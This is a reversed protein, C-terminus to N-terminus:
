ESAAIPFSAAESRGFTEPFYMEYATAPLATFQGPVSARATYTYEYVGPRLEPAFVAVKTDRVEAHTWYSWYPSGPGPYGKAPQPQGPPPGVQKISPAQAAASTTKLSLDLAEFGAPLPDELVVYNLTTPAILTLKVMVYDGPKVDKAEQGTPKLTLPDVALYTRGVVIGRDLAQSQGAPRYTTLHETYYMDPGGTKSITLNNGANAALDKLAIEIKQADATAAGVEGSKIDQGNLNVTFRSSGAGGGRAAAYNALALTAWATEQPTRWAGDERRQSMLWTVVNALNADKPDVRGLAELAIATTRLDTNMTTPNPTSETWHVGTAGQEAQGWLNQALAKVRPAQGQPDAKQLAMLLFAQGYLSMDGRANYLEVARGNQPQGIEALVWLVFARQSLMGPVSTDVRQDLYARLTNAAADLINKDVAVGDQQATYLALLTYATLFPNSADGQWWGWGGDLNRQGYLKQLDNSLRAKVQTTDAAQGLAQTAKMVAATALFRSAVTETAEWPYVQLSHVGQQAVAAVSPAITVSLGGQGAAADAPLRVVEEARQADTVVGATGVTEPTTARSVPIDIAVSDNLGGGEVAMIVGAKPADGVRADWGVVTKGRAPISVRLPDTKGDFGQTQLTVRADVARDTNNQVVAGLRVSDGQVLFRPLTPRM